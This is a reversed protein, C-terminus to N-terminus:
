LVGFLRQCQQRTLVNEYLLRLTHVYFHGSGARIRALVGAVAENTWEAGTPSLLAKATLASRLESRTSGAELGSVLIQIVRWYYTPSHRTRPNFKLLAGRLRQGSICFPGSHARIQHASAAKAAMYCM